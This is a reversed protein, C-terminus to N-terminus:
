PQTGNPTPTTTSAVIVVYQTDGQSLRVWGNFRVYAWEPTTTYLITMCTDNRLWIKAHNSPIETMGPSTRVNLGHTAVCGKVPTPTSTPTIIPTSTPTNTPTSTPTNTPTSTPTNTLTITPSPPTYAITALVHHIDTAIGKIIQEDDTAIQTVIIVSVILPPILAIQPFIQHVKEILDNVWGLEATKSDDITYKYLFYLGFLISTGLLVGNIWPIWNETNKILTITWGLGIVIATIFASISLQLYKNVEM